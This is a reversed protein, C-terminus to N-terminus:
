DRTTRRGIVEKQIPTTLRDCAKSNMCHDFPVDLSSQGAQRRQRLFPHARMGNPVRRRSMEEPSADVNVGYAGPQTM